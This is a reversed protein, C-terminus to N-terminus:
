PLLPQKEYRDRIGWSQGAASRHVEHDRQVIKGKSDKNEPLQIVVPLGDVITLPNIKNGGLTGAFQLGIPSVKVWNAFQPTATPEAKLNVAACSIRPQLVIATGDAVTRKEFTAQLPISTQGQATLVIGNGFGGGIGTDLHLDLSISATADATMSVQLGKQASWEPRQPELTISGTAFNESAPRLEFGIDAV